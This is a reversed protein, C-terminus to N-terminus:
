TMEGTVSRDLHRKYTERLLKKDIKGTATLPLAEVEIVDDPLQWRALRARMADLVAEKAPPAGREAVFLLIPREQWKPHPAAIAAVQAVGPCAAAAAELETSSIWEGGSKILDKFRDTIVVAGDPGVAGIDGTPFWGDGDLMDGGEGRFYGSAVCPGRVWIDGATAGDRPAENGAADVVKIEVPYLIRGANGYLARDREAQPLAEIEPTPCTFSGLPSLETMGWGTLVEVGHRRRLRESMAPPIASGGILASRL